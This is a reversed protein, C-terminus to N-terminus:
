STSTAPTGETPVKAPMVIDVGYPKGDTNEDMWNLVTELRRSRQVPRLRARRARGGQQGGGGGEGVPHLRLDPVDIGFRDCLETHM